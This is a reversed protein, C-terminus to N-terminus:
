SSSGSSRRGVWDSARFPQYLDGLYLIFALVFAVTVFRANFSARGAWPASLETLWLASYIVALDGVFLVFTLGSVYHRFIRLM